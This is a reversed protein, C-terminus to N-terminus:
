GEEMIEFHSEWSQRGALGVEGFAKLGVFEFCVRITSIVGLISLSVTMRQRGGVELYVLKMWREGQQEEGRGAKGYDYLPFQLKGVHISEKANGFERDTCM